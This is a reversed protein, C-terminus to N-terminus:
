VIQYQGEGTGQIVNEVDMPSLGKRFLQLDVTGNEHEEVIIGPLQTKPKKTIDQAMMNREEQTTNYVVTKGLNIM